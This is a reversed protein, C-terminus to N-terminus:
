LGWTQARGDGGPPGPEFALTFYVAKGVPTRCIGWTASLSAVLMLGRGAEADAAADVLVPLTRSTDHVEVRLQGFSCTVALTISEGQEHGIANTVLESTLLIAVNEDVRVDWAGIAAQVHCRAQGVAAPKAALRVQCGHLETPRPPAMANM